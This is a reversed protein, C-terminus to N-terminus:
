SWWYRFHEVVRVADLRDLVDLGSVLQAFTTFGGKDLGPIDSLCLYFETSGSGADALDQRAFGLAGRVNHPATITEPGIRPELMAEDYGIGAQAFAGPVLRYVAVGDYRRQRVLQKFRRVALPAVEPNLRFVLRGLNTAAVVYDAASAAQAGVLALLCLAFKVLRLTCFAMTTEM